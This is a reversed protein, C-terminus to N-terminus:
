QKANRRKLEELATEKVLTLAGAKDARVGETTPKLMEAVDAQINEVFWLPLHEQGLNYVLDLESGKMTCVLAPRWLVELAVRQCWNTARAALKKESESISSQGIHWSHNVKAGNKGYKVRVSSDTRKGHKGTVERRRMFAFFPVALSRYADNVESKDVIKRSEGSLENKIRDFCRRLPLMEVGSVRPIFVSQIILAMGPLLRLHEVGFANLAEAFDVGEDFLTLSVPEDHRNELASFIEIEESVNNNRILINM